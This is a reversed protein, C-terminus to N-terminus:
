RMVCAQVHASVRVDQTGAQIAPAPAADMMKAMAARFVPRPAEGGSLNVTQIAVESRGLAQGHAEARKRAEKLVALELAERAARRRLESVVPTIGSLTLYRQLAALARTTQDAVPGKLLVGYRGRWAIIVKRKSDYVPWSSFTRTQVEVEPAYPEAAAKVQQSIRNLQRNITAVNGAQVEVYLKAHLRDVEVSQSRAVSFSIQTGACDTAQSVPSLLLLFASLLAIYRPM